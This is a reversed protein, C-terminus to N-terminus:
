GTLVLKATSACSAGLSWSGQGLSKRKHSQEIPWSRGQSGRRFGLYNEIKSSSGAQGGPASKEIVLVDLGESAGYVAAALGAPGAGVIVLDRVQSDNINANFGLCEAVENTTPNRLVQTNNCIVVPIDDTTVGFRDLMEQTASDTDLDFYNFPHGDRTLFERILLTNASYKSGLIVVNGQSTDKLSLRRALFANTLIDSSEADRGILTRLQKPTIELLTGREVVQCRYISRRGSIILLEGSFQGARYTTVIRDEDGGTAVIRIAGSLVVYVPPTDFAPEYLVETAVVDRQTAYPRLREIQAETLTPAYAM